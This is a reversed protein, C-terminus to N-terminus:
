GPRAEALLARVAGGPDPARSIASIAAIGAASAAILPRVNGATIGGIAVVPIGGAADRVEAIAEIGQAPPLGAKTMTAYIPGFGVYDAGARAAEAAEAPDDVSRGILFDAPAVARAARLPLDDDGLHVGDAGAALAVDLRDNVFLLAGTPRTIGLLGTALDFAARATAEKLRLQIAPAGAEVAARATALIREPADRDDTIAILRLREALDAGRV